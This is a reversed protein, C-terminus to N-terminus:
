PGPDDLSRVLQRADVGATQDGPRQVVRLDAVWRRARHVDRPGCVDGAAELRQRAGELRVERLVILDPGGLLPRGERVHMLTATTVPAALPMPRAITSRRRASPQSTSPTSRDPASRSASRVVRSPLAAATNSATSRKSPSSAITALAPTWCTEGIASNGSSRQSPISASSSVEGNRSAFYAQGCRIAHPRPRKRATADTCPRTGDGNLLAYTDALCPTIPRTRVSASSPASCPM